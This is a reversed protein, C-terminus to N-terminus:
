PRTLTLNEILIASFAAFPKGDLNPDSSFQVAKIGEFGPATLTFTQAPVDAFRRVLGLSATSLETGRESLAVAKWSPFTIGSPSQPWVKPVVFSVAAVPEAFTLTFSAPVNGTNMQTLVNQSSTPAVAKGEYLGLNNILVLRSDKPERDTVTISIEADHLYPDAAVMFGPASATDVRAFNIAVEKTPKEVASPSPAPIPAPAPPSVPMSTVRLLYAGAVLAVALIVAGIRIWPRARATEPAVSSPVPEHPRDLLDKVSKVLTRLYPELPPTFADLWNPLSLFYELGRAPAVNEIRLPIIPMGRNVAREVERQVHHSENAHSSFILVMVRAQNLGAMIGEGWNQGYPIDRPAIWCKVANAELMACAADATAKDKQSFSVFVDYTGNEAM